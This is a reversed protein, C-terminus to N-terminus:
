CMVLAAASGVCVHRSFLGGSGASAAAARARMAEVTTSPGGRVSDIRLSAGMSREERQVMAQRDRGSWLLSASNTGDMRGATWGHFTSHRFGVQSMKTRGTTSPRSRTRCTKPIPGAATARESLLNTIYGKFGTM